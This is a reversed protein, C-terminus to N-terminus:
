KWKTNVATDVEQHMIGDELLAFRNKLELTFLDKTAEDHLKQHDTKRTNSDHNHKFRAVKTQVEAIV